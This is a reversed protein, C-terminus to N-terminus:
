GAAWAPLRHEPLLVAVNDASPRVEDSDGRGEGLLFRVALSGFTVTVLPCWFGEDERDGWREYRLEVDTVPSSLAQQWPGWSTVDWEARISDARVAREALVGRYLVLGEHWGPDQWTVSISGADQVDLEVGWDVSHCTSFLWTPRAWESPGEVRRAPESGDRDMHNFDLNVYRVGTIRAGILERAESQRSEVETWTKVWSEPGAIAESM